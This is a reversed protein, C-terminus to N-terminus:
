KNEGKYIDWFMLAYPSVFMLLGFASLFLFAPFNQGLFSVDASKGNLRLIFEAMGCLICIAIGPLRFLKDSFSLETKKRRTM